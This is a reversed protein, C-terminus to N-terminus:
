KEITLEPKIEKDLLGEEILTVTISDIANLINHVKTDAVAVKSIITSCHAPGHRFNKLYAYLTGVSDHLFKRKEVKLKGIKKELVKLASDFFKQLEKEALFLNMQGTDRARAVVEKPVGISPAILLIWEELAKFAPMVIFSYDFYEDSGGNARFFGKSHTRGLYFADDMLQIIKTGLPYSNLYQWAIPSFRFPLQPGGQTKDERIVGLNQGMRM